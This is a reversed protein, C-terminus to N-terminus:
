IVKDQFDSKLVKISKFSIIKVYIFLVKVEVLVLAVLLLFCLLQNHFDSHTTECLYHWRAQLMSYINELM